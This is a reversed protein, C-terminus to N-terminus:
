LDGGNELRAIADRVVLNQEPWMSMKDEIWRLAKIMAAREIDKRQEDTIPPKGTAMYNDIQDQTMTIPATWAVRPPQEMADLREMVAILSRGM